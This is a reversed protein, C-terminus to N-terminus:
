QGQSCCHSDLHPPWYLAIEGGGRSYNCPLSPRIEWMQGTDGLTPGRANCQSSTRCIQPHITCKTIFAFGKACMYYLDICTNGSTSGGAVPGRFLIAATKWFPRRVSLNEMIVQFRYYISDHNSCSCGHKWHSHIQHCCQRYHRIAAMKLELIVAQNEWKQYYM